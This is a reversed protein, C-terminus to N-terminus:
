TDAKRGVACARFAEVARIDDAAKDMLDRATATGSTVSGDPQPDEFDIMRDPKEEVIRQVDRYLAQEQAPRMADLEEVAARAEAPTPPSLDAPGRASMADRAARAIKMHQATSGLRLIIDDLGHVSMEVEFEAMPSDVGYEQGHKRAIAEKNKVHKSVEADYASSDTDLGAKAKSFRRHEALVDKLMADSIARSSNEEGNKNAISRYDPGALDNQVHATLRKPSEPVQLPQQPWGEGQPPPGRKKPGKNWYATHFRLMIKKPPTKSSVYDIAEVVHLWNGDIMMRREIGLRGKKLKTQVLEGRELVDPVSQFDKPKFPIEDSGHDRLVKHVANTDMRRQAIGLNHGEPLYKSAEGIIEEFQWDALRGYFIADADAPNTGENKAHTTAGDAREVLDNIRARRHNLYDDLARGSPLEGNALAQEAEAMAALHAAQGEVSDEFPSQETIDRATEVVTAAARTEPTDPVAGAQRAARWADSLAGLGRGILKVGVGLGGAGVAGSAVNEVMDGATFEVGIDRKWGAVSPLTATEVAAGLGAEVLFTRLLGAGAPASLMVTALNPPDLV